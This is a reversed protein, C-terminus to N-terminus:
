RRLSNGWGKPNDDKYDDWDRKKKLKEDDDDEEEEDESDKKSSSEAGGKGSVMGGNRMEIEVAEQPTLSPLIHSPRFVKDLMVRRGDPLIQFNGINASKPPAKPPLVGGHQDKISQIEILMPLEFEISELLQIAKIIADKILLMSFDRDVEEDGGTESEEYEDDQGIKKLIVERKQKIYELKQKIEKTKKSRNILEERRNVPDAKGERHIINLDEKDILDLNECQNLFDMVKIKSIKLHKVRDVDNIKLYLEAVYYPILLYKLLDTRIDELEENKSFVSQRSVQISANFLYKISQKVKDQYEECNSCLATTDLETYLKQGFVFSQYLSLDLTNTTSTTSTTPTSTTTTSESM